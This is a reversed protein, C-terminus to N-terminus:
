KYGLNMWANMATDHIDGGRVGQRLLAFQKVLFTQAVSARYLRRFEAAFLVYSM